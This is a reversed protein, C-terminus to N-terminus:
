GDSAPDLITRDLSALPRDFMSPEDADYLDLLTLVQDRLARDDACQEQVFDRREDPDLDLALDFLKRVRQLPITM